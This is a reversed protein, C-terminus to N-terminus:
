VCKVPLSSKVILHNNRIHSFLIHAEGLLSNIFFDRRNSSAIRCFAMLQGGDVPM